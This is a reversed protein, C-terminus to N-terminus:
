TSMQALFDRMAKRWLDSSCTRGPAPRTEAQKEMYGRELWNGNGDVAVHAQKNAATGHTTQLKKVDSKPEEILKHYEVNSRLLEQRELM